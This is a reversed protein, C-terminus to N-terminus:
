STLLPRVSDPVAAVLAIYFFYSITVVSLAARLFSVASVTKLMTDDRWSQQGDLRALAADAFFLLFFSLLGDAGLTIQWWPWGDLIVFSAVFRDSPFKSAIYSRDVWSFVLAAKATLTILVIWSLKRRVKELEGKTIRELRVKISLTNRTTAHAVWVFPAYALATAKFSVRYLISPLWGLIIVPSVFFLQAAQSVIRPRSRILDLAKAPTLVGSDPLSELPVIEPPYALDTCFSQRLWNQPMDKVTQFPRRAAWYVTAVIRISTGVVPILIFMLPVTLLTLDRLSPLGVLKTLSYYFKQYVKLGWEASVQTRFLMLPAVAVAVALYKFTGLYVGLGLYIAVSAVCEVIALKTFEENLISQHTSYSRM